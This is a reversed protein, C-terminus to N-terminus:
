SQGGAPAPAVILAAVVREAPAAHFISWYKGISLPSESGCFGEVLQSAYRRWWDTLRIAEEMAFAAAHDSSYNPVEWTSEGLHNQLRDDADDPRAAEVLRREGSSGYQPSLLWRQSGAPGDAYWRWGCVREAVYADRVRHPMAIIEHPDIVM